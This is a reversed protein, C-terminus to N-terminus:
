DALPMECAQEKVTVKLCFYTLLTVDVSAEPFRRGGPWCHQVAVIPHHEVM